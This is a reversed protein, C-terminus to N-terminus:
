VGHYSLSHRPTGCRPVSEIGRVSVPRRRRNHSIITRMEARPEKARVCTFRGVAAARVFSRERGHAATLPRRPSRRPSLLLPAELPVSQQRGSLPRASHPRSSSAVASPSFPSHTPSSPSSLSPGRAARGNQLVALLPPLNSDGPSLFKGCKNSDVLSVRVNAVLGRNM